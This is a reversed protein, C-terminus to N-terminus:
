ELTVLPLEDTLAIEIIEWMLASKGTRVTAQIVEINTNTQRAEYHSCESCSGLPNVACKLLPSNARYICTIERERNEVTM